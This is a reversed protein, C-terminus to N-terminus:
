VNSDYRETKLKRFVTNKLTNLDAMGTILPFTSALIFVVAKQWLAIPINYKLEAFPFFSAVGLAIIYYLIVKFIKREVYFYRQSVNYALLYYIVSAILTTFAAGVFSYKPVFYFNLGVNVVATVLSFWVFHGMKEKLFMGFATLQSSQNIIHSFLLLPIVLAGMIYASPALIKIIDVSFISLFLAISISVFLYFYWIQSTTKKTQSKDKAVENEYLSIYIPGFSMQVAMNLLLLPQAIISGVSYLGVETTNQYHLLFFRDSSLYFWSIIGTFILPFGFKLMRKAWYFSFNYTYRKRNFLMFSFLFLITGSIFSALQAGLVGKKLIIVLSIGAGIHALMQLITILNFEWPRRYYRYIHSQESNMLQLPLLLCSLFVVWSYQTTKFLVLSIQSSFFALILSPVIVILRFVFITFLVKGKEEKSKAMFFYRGSASDLGFNFVAAIFFIAVGLVELIGYDSPMLARTYFPM